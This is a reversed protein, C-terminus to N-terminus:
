GAFLYASCECMGCFRFTGDFQYLSLLLLLDATHTQTDTVKGTNNIKKNPPPPPQKGGKKIGFAPMTLMENEAAAAASSSPHFFIWLFKCNLDKSSNWIHVHDFADPKTARVM